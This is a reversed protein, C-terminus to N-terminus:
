PHIIPQSVLEIKKGLTQELYKKLSQNNKIVTSANEDPLLAVKLTSPDPETGAFALFASPIAILLCVLISLIKKM